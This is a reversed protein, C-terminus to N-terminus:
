CGDPYGKSAPITIGLLWTDELARINHPVNSQIKYSDSFELIVDNEECDKNAYTIKLKGSKNLIILWEVEEHIHTPFESECTIFTKQISFDREKAIFFGICTGNVDYIIQSADKNKIMTDFNPINKTLEELLRINNNM